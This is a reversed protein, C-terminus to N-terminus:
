FGFILNVASEVAFDTTEFEPIWALGSEANRANKQAM